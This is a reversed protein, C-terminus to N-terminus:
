QKITLSHRGTVKKATIADRIKEERERIMPGFHKQDGCPGVIESGM